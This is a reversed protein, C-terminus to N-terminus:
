FFFIFFFFLIFFFYDSLDSLDVSLIFTFDTLANMRNSSWLNFYLSDWCHRLNRYTCPFSQHKVYVGNPTCLFINWFDCYTCMHERSPIHKNLTHNVRLFHYLPKSPETTPLRGWLKRVHFSPCTLNRVVYNSTFSSTNSEMPHVCSFTGSTVIHACTSGQLSISILTHNM